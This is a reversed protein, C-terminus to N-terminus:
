RWLQHMHQDPMALNLKAWTTSLPTLLEGGLTGALSGSDSDEDRSSSGGRGARGRGRGTGTAEDSSGSGYGVMSGGGRQALANQLLLCTALLAVGFASSSGM